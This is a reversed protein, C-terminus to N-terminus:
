AARSAMEGSDRRLQGLLRRIEREYAQRDNLQDIRLQELEAQRRDLQQERAAMRAAQGEIDAQRNAAGRELEHKQQLVRQHERDLREALMELEKREGAVESRELRYQEALKGRIQALSQSLAAPPAVGIMQAWLEDTALRVELAERQTRLVEARLQDVAASRREVQEARSKVAYLQKEVEATAHAQAEAAQRREAECRERWARREAEFQRRADDLEAQGDHLLVEAEELNGQRSRLRKLGAILENFLKAQGSDDPTSAGGSADGSADSDLGPAAPKALTSFDEGRLFLGITDIAAAARRNFQASEERLRDDLQKQEAACRALAASVAAHETDQRDVAQQREDLERQRSSFAESQRRQDTKARERSEAQERDARAIAAEREQIERERNVLEAERAALEQQRERFWLRANRAGNEQEAAQAHLDAERRDIQAQQARFHGAIQEAQLQLQEAAPSSKDAVLSEGAVAQGIAVTERDVEVVDSESQVVDVGEPAPTLLHPPDIRTQRKAAASDTASTQSQREPKTM